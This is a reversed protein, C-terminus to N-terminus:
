TTEMSVPPSASETQWVLSQNLIVDHGQFPTINQCVYSKKQKAFVVIEDLPQIFQLEFSVPQFHSGHM